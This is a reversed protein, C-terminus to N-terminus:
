SCLIDQVWNLLQRIGERWYGRGDDRDCAIAKYASVPVISVEEDLLGSQRLLYRAGVISDKIDGLDILDVKNLAVICPIELKRIVLMLIRTHTLSGEPIAWEELVDPASATLIIGRSNAIDGSIHSSIKGWNLYDTPNYSHNVVPITLQPGSIRSSSGCILQDLASSLTRKGHGKDGVILIDTDSQPSEQNPAEGGGDYRRAHHGLRYESV